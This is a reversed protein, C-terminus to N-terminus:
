RSEDAGSGPEAARSPDSWTPAFSPHPRPPVIEDMQADALESRQPEDQSSYDTSRLPPAVSEDMDEPAPHRDRLKPPTASWARLNGLVVGYFADIGDLVSDIFSGRGRGRKTGMPGTMAVRFARLERSPDVVLSSPNERVDSLLEAASTGRGHAVFSEVRLNGPAEKLQRVLWNV